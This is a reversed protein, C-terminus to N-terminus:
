ILSDTYFGYIGQKQYEEATDADNITHVFCIFGKDLLLKKLQGNEYLESERDENMTIVRIGKELAFEAEKEASFDPDNDFGYWTYIVSKWSYVDMIEDYMEEFYIQPIFRDLMQPAYNELTEYIREYEKKIEEPEDTGYKGDLVIYCDPYDNLLKAFDEFSLTTYKGYIKANLFVESSLPERNESKERDIGLIKRLDNNRWSHFCVLEDDSTFKLDLEFVRYGKEYNRIFAEKSNTYSYEDIAGLAHCIYKSSNLWSYDLGKSDFNKKCACFLFSILLLCAGGICIFRKKM